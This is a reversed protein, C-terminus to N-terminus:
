KQNEPETNEEHKVQVNEISKKGGPDLDADIWASGSGPSMEKRPDPDSVSFKLICM